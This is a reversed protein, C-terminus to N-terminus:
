KQILYRIEQYIEFFKVKNDYGFFIVAEDQIAQVYNVPFPLHSNDKWRLVMYGYDLLRPPIYAVDTIQDYSITYERHMSNEFVLHDRRFLIWSGSEGMHLGMPLGVCHSCPSNVSWVISQEADQNLKMGCSSCFRKNGCDRGCKPCFM